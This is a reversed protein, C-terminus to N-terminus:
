HLTYWHGDHEVKPIEPDPPMSDDLDLEDALIRAARARRSSASATMAGSGDYTVSSSRGLSVGESVVSRRGAVSAVGARRSPSLDRARPPAAHARRKRFRRLMVAAFALVWLLTAGAFVPVFGYRRAMEKRWRLEVQGLSEGYASEIAAEFPSRCGSGAPCATGGEGGEGVAGVAGVASGRIKGLMDSFRERNPRGSLFRLFDAAEAYAISSQLPEAPFHAELAGLEIIERRLSAVSLMEARLASEEGSFHVAYGEHLWRPVPQAGLAEDLALHALAHRLVIEINPPDVSLPSAASMVVLHVQSFAVATAYSPVQEVPAIRAMESPAAAVRIEVQALVDRGLETSLEARIAALRAAIPRVREGTSPQYSLVIGADEHTHYELPIPPVSIHDADIRPADYPRLDRAWARTSVAFLALAFLAATAVCARSRRARPFRARRIM